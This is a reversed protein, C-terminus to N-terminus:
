GRSEANKEADLALRWRPTLYVVAGNAAASVFLIAGWWHGTVCFFLGVAVFCIVALLRAVAVGKVHRRGFDTLIARAIPPVPKNSPQMMEDGRKSDIVRGQILEYM